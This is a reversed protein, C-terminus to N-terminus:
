AKVFQLLMLWTQHLFNVYKLDFSALKFATTVPDLSLTSLGFTFSSSIESFLLFIQVSFNILKLSVTLYFMDSVQM